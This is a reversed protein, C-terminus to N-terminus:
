SIGFDALTANAPLLVNGDQDLIDYTRFPVYSKLDETSAPADYSGTWGTMSPRQDEYSSLTITVKNIGDNWPYIGYGNLKDQTQRFHTFYSKLNNNNNNYFTKTTTNFRLHDNADRYYLWSPGSYYNKFKIVNDVYGITNFICAGSITVGSPTAIPNIFTRISQPITIGDHWNGDSIISYLDSPVKGSLASAGFVKFRNNFVPGSLADGKMYESMSSPDVYGDTGMWTTYWRGNNGDYGMYEKTPFLYPLDAPIHPYGDDDLYIGNAENNEQRTFFLNWAQFSTMNFRYYPVFQTFDSNFKMGYIVVASSSPTWGSRNYGDLTAIYSGDPYKSFIGWRFCQNATGFQGNLHNEFLDEPKGLVLPHALEIAPAMESVKLKNKSNTISRIAEAIAKISRENYFYQVNDSM